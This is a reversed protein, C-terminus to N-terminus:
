ISDERQSSVNVLKALTETVIVGGVKVRQSLTMSVEKGPAFAPKVCRWSIM